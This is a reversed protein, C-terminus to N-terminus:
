DWGREWIVEGHEGWWESHKPREAGPVSGWEQRPSSRTSAGGQFYEAGLTQLDAREQCEPQLVLVAEKILDESIGTEALEGGPWQGSM